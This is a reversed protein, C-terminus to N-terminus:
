RGSEQAEAEALAQRVLARVRREAEELAAEGLASFGDGWSQDFPEIAVIIVQEPLAGFHDLILLLNELNIVGTVAESVRSQLEDLTVPPSNWSMVTVSGPPRGRLVAGAFIGLSFRPVAQLQFLVDIPSYSLDAIVVGAPWRDRQLRAVLAPGISLDRLNTYGVGAVLIRPEGSPRQELAADLQRDTLAQPHTHSPWLMGALPDIIREVWDHRTMREGRM